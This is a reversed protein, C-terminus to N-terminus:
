FNLMVVFTDWVWTRLERPLQGPPAGDFDWRSRAEMVVLEGLAACLGALVAWCLCLSPSGGHLCSSSGHKRFFILSQKFLIWKFESNKFFEEHSRAFICWTTLFLGLVFHVPDLIFFHMFSCSAMFLILSFIFVRSLSNRQHFNQNCTLMLLFVRTCFAVPCLPVCFGLVSSTHSPFWWWWLM